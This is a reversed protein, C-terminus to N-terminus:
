KRSKIGEEVYEEFLRPTPPNDVVVAIDLVMQLVKLPSLPFTEVEERVWIGVVDKSEKLGFHFLKRVIRVCELFGLWEKEPVTYNEERDIM